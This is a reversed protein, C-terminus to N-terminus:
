PNAALYPKLRQALVTGDAPVPMTAVYRGGPDMLYFFSSHDMFYNKSGDEAKERAAYVGFAKEAAGIDPASGTLAVIKPSFNAVFQALVVPTDREPDITVFIPQLRDALPGLVSLAETISNLSLPCADPCFSYGFYFLQWKGRYTRETVTRGDSAILSFKGGPKATRIQISAMASAVVILAFLTLGILVLLRRRPSKAPRPASAPADPNEPGAATPQDIM